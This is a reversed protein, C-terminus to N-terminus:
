TAKVQQTDKGLLQKRIGWQLFTDVMIIMPIYSAEIVIKSCEHTKFAKTPEWM